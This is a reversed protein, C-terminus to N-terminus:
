EEPHTLVGTIEQLAARGGPISQVRVAESQLRTVTERIRTKYEKALRDKEPREPPPLQKERKRLELWEGSAKKLQSRAADASDRDRVAALTKNIRELIAITKKVVDELPSEQAPLAGGCATVLAVALALPAARMRLGRM